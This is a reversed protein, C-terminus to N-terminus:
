LNSSKRVATQVTYSDAIRVIDSFTLLSTKLIRFVKRSLFGFGSTCNGCRDFLAKDMKPPPPVQQVRHPRPAFRADNRTTSPDRSTM